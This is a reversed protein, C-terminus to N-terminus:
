PSRLPPEPADEPELNSASTDRLSPWEGPPSALALGADAPPPSAPWAPVAHRAGLTSRLRFLWGDAM